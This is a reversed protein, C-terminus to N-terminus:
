HPQNNVISEEFFSQWPSFHRNVTLEFQFMMVMFLIVKSSVHLKMLGCRDIESM